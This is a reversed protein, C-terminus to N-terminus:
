AGNYFLWEGCKRCTLKVWANSPAVGTKDDDMREGECYTWDANVTKSKFGCHECQFKKREFDENGM